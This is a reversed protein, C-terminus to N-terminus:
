CFQSTNEQDDGVTAPFDTQALMVELMLKLNKFTEQRKYLGNWVKM